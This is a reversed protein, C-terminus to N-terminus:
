LVLSNQLFSCSEDIVAFENQEDHIISGGDEMWLATDKLMLTRKNNMLIKLYHLFLVIDYESFRNFEFIKFAGIAYCSLYKMRCIVLGGGMKAEANIMEYVVVLATRLAFMDDVCNIECKHEELWEITKNFFSVVTEENKRRRTTITIIKRFFSYKASLDGRAKTLCNIFLKVINTEDKSENSAIFGSLFTVMQFMHEDLLKTVDENNIYCYAAALFEQLTLHRFQYYCGWPREVKIIFVQLIDKIECSQGMTDDFEKFAGKPFVIKNELLLQYSIEGLIHISQTFSQDDLIMYPELNYSRSHARIFSLYVWTYLCSLKEMEVNGKEMTLICCVSNLYQPIRCLSAVNPSNELYTLISNELEDNGNTFKKVYLKANEKSLGSVEVTRLIGTVKDQNRKLISEIHPRGTIITSHGPIPGCSQNILKNLITNQQIVNELEPVEDLGDLVVLIREGKNRIDELRVGFM